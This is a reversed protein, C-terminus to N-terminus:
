GPDTKPEAVVAIDQWELWHENLEIAGHRRYFRRARTNTPEVDVCIRQASHQQFWRALHGLLESAVGLGRHEAAIHIWQLEGDCDFRRTLHGAIYGVCDSGCEAVILIRPELAWQPHHTGRLYGEIRQKYYNENDDGDSRLRAVVEADEPHAIRYTVCSM